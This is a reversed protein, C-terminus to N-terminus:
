PDPRMRRAGAVYPRGRGDRGGRALRAPARRAGGVAAASRTPLRRTCRCPGPVVGQVGVWFSPGMTAELVRADPPRGVWALPRPAPEPLLVPAALREAEDALDFDGFADDAALGRGRLRATELAFRERLGLDLVGLDRAEFEDFPLLALPATLATVSVM